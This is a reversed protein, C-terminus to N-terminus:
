NGSTSPIREYIVLAGRELALRYSAPVTARADDTPSWLLVHDFRPTARTWFDAWIARWREDCDGAVIGRTREAACFGDRTRM